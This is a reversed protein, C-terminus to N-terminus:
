QIAPAKTTPLRLAVAVRRGEGLLINFTRCAAGTDMTDLALEKEKLAKRVSPDVMEHRVGTGILLLETTPEYAFLPALAELTLEGNWAHTATPLVLVHSAYDANGIRFGGVGYSLILQANAGLPPMIDQM